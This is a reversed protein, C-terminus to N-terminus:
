KIRRKGGVVTKEKHAARAMKTTVAGLQMTVEVPTPVVFIADVVFVKEETM